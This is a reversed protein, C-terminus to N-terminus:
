VKRLGDIPATYNKYYEPSSPDDCVKMRELRVDPVNYVGEVKFRMGYQDFYDLKLLTGKPIPIKIAPPCTSYGVLDKDAVYYSEM